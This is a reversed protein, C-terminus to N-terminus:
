VYVADCYVTKAQFDPVLWPLTHLGFRQEDAAFEALLAYEPARTDCIFSLHTTDQAALRACLRRVLQEFDELNMFGYDLAFALRFEHHADGHDLKNLENVAWAGIVADGHVLYDERGFSGVRSCRDTLMGADYPQFLERDGHTANILECVREDTASASVPEVGEGLSVPLSLRVIKVDEAKPFGVNQMHVNNPDVLSYPFLLNTDEFTRRPDVASALAM